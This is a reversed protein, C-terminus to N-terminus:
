FLEEEKRKKSIFGLGGIFTLALAMLYPMNDLSIGTDVVAGKTNTIAVIDTDATITTVDEETTKVSEISGSGSTTTENDSNVYSAEYGEDSNADGTTHSADEVVTYTVGDPIDTFHVTEGHKLEVDVVATNNDWDDENIATPNDSKGGSIKITSKVPKQATFEVKVKFYKDRDGLNGEVTKTVDLSGLVYTNTIQDIKAKNDQTGTNTIGPTAVLATHNDNYVVTVTLKLEEKTYDVAQTNGATEKITYLYTGVEDYSPINIKLKNSIGNVVIDDVTVEPTADPNNGDPTVTFKLTETPFLGETTNGIVSYNKTYAEYTQADTAAVGTDAAFAMMSSGLVMTTALVASLTKNMKKM